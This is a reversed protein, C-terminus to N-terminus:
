SEEVEEVIQYESQGANRVAVLATVATAIVALLLLYWRLQSSPPPDPEIITLGVQAESVKKETGEDSIGEVSADIRAHEQQQPVQPAATKANEMGPTPKAASWEDAFRQLSTGDGGGGRERSYNVTDLAFAASKISLTEGTNSLSFSSDFVSLVHNFEGAFKEAHSAIIAFAGPSISRQGKYAKILHDTEGESFRLGTVDVSSTGINQIEIWESREDSGPADYMIESISVSAYGAFPSLMFSLIFITSASRRVEM